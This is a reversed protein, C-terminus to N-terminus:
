KWRRGRGSPIADMLARVEQRVDEFAAGEVTAFCVSGHETLTFGAAAELIIAASPLAFLQDLDLAVPKSRGLLIDLLGM